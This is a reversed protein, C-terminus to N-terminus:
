LEAETCCCPTGHHEALIAEEGLLGFVCHVGSHWQNVGSNCSKRIVTVSAPKISCIAYLLLFVSVFCLSSQM